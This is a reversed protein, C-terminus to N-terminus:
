AFIVLWTEGFPFELRVVSLKSEAMFRKIYTSTSKVLRASSLSGLSWEHRVRSTTRVASRAAHLETRPYTINILTRDHNIRSDNSLATLYYILHIILTKQPFEQHEYSHIKTARLLCWTIEQVIVNVILLSERIQNLM